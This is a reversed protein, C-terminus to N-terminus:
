ERLDIRQKDKKLFFEPKKVKEDNKPFM